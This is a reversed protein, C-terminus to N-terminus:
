LARSSNPDTSKTSGSTSLQIINIICFKIKLQTKLGHIFILFHPMNKNISIMSFQAPM